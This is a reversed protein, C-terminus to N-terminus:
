KPANAVFDAAVIVITSRISFDRVQGTYTYGGRLCAALYNMKTPINGVIEGSTTTAVVRKKLAIRLVTGIKPGAGTKKFYECHEVDELTVGFARTCRDGQPEDGGGGGQDGGKPSSDKSTTSGPYDTLRGSGTTGM